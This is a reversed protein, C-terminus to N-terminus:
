TTIQRPKFKDKMYGFLRDDKNLIVIGSKKIGAKIEAKASAIEELSKFFGIHSRGINTIIAADIELISALRKIEGKHNMGLELVIVGTDDKLKFITAPMGIYNNFSKESKVVRYKTALLAATIEKTTTKGNSGTIAVTKLKKFKELYYGALTLLASKTNKVRLIRGGAKTEKETIILAAGKSAADKAYKHGDEKDGRIAVFAEGSKIKRSDTSIGSIEFDKGAYERGFIRYIERITLKMKEEKNGEACNGQGFVPYKQM